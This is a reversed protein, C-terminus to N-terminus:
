APVSPQPVVVRVGQQASTVAAALLRQVRVGDTFSPRAPDGTTIWDLFRSTLRSVPQVRADVSSALSRTPPVPVDVVTGARRTGVSLRFGRVHDTGANGLALVGESGYIEVHHGSGLPAATSLTAAATMSSTFTLALTVSTDGPRASDGARGLTASLHAIPGFLWELYHFLHPGFHLLAGGGLADDTKWSTLGLRNDHSELLWRIVAHRPEGIEGRALRARCERWTDIEPFIYDVMAAVGAARAHAELQEAEIASGALLKEVFVPLGRDLVARTISPQIHPPSAIAVADLAGADLMADVSAYARALQLEDRARAASAASGTCIAVLQCRPDLRFAPALAYRGFGAGVIGVRVPPSAPASPTM